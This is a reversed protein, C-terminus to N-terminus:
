PLTTSKGGQKVVGSDQRQTSTAGGSLSDPGQDYASFPAMTQKALADGGHDDTVARYGGDTIMDMLAQYANQLSGSVDESAQINQLMEIEHGLQESYDLARRIKRELSERRYWLTTDAWVLAQRMTEASPGDALGPAGVVEGNTMLQPMGMETGQTLSIAQAELRLNMDYFPDGGLAQYAKFLKGMYSTDSDAQCGIAGGSADYRFLVSGIRMQGASLHEIRANILPLQSRVFAFARDMQSKNWTGLFDFAM